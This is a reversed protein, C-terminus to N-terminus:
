RSSPTPTGRVVRPLLDGHSSRWALQETPYGRYQLVRCVGDIYTIASKCVATNAFGIDFTTDGHYRNGIDLPLDNGQTAQVFPLELNKEGTVLTAPDPM